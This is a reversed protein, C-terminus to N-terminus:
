KDILLKLFIEKSLNEPSFDYDCEIKVTTETNGDKKICTANYTPTDVVVGGCRTILSRLTLLDSTTLADIYNETYSAHHSVNSKSFSSKFATYLWGETFNFTLVGLDTQVRKPNTEVKISFLIDNPDVIYQKSGNMNNSGVSAIFFKVNHSNYSCSYDNLQLSVKLIDDKTMSESNILIAECAKGQYNLTTMDGSFLIQPNNRKHNGDFGIKFSQDNVYFLGSFDLDVDEEWYIGVVLSKTANTLRFKSYNPVNGLFQKESVPLAYECEHPVCVVKNYFIKSYDQVISDSLAKLVICAKLPNFARRETRGKETVFATGNRVTYIKALNQKEKTSNFTSTSYGVMERIKSNLANYAKIKSSTKAECLLKSVNSIDINNVIYDVCGKQTINKLLSEIDDYYGINRVTKPIKKAEKSVRNIISCNGSNKLCLFFKKNRNYIKALGLTGNCKVYEELLKNRLTINYGYFIANLCQENKIKLTYGTALFILVRLVEEPTLEKAFDYHENILMRKFLYLKLEKNRISRWDGITAYNDLEYFQVIHNITELSMACNKHAIEEMEAYLTRLDDVSDIVIFKTYNVNLDDLCPKGLDKPIYVFESEFNTGYTTMYHLTQEMRLELESMSEVNEFDLFNGTYDRRYNLVIYDALEDDDTKVLIGHKFCKLNYQETKSYITNFLNLFIKNM